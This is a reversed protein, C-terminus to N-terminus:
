LVLIWLSFINSEVSSFLANGGPFPAFKGAMRWWLFSHLAGTALHWCWSALFFDRGPVEPHDRWGRRVERPSGSTSMFFHIVSPLQFPTICQCGLSVFEYCEKPINIENGFRAFLFGYLVDLPNCAEEVNGISHIDVTCCLVAMTAVLLNVKQHRWLDFYFYLFCDMWFILFKQGTFYRSKWSLPLYNGVWHWHVSLLQANWSPSPRSSSTRKSTSIMSVRHWYKWRKRGHVTLECVDHFSRNNQVSHPAMVSERLMYMISEWPLEVVRNLM